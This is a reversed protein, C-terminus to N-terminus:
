TEPPSIMRELDPISLGPRPAKENGPFPYLIMVLLFYVLNSSRNGELHFCVRNWYTGSGSFVCGYM